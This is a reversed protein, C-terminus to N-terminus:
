TFFYGTVPLSEYPRLMSRGGCTSPLASEWQRRGTKQLPPSTGRIAEPNVRLGELRAPEKPKEDIRIGAASDFM